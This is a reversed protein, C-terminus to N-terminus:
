NNNPATDEIMARLQLLENSVLDISDLVRQKDEPTSDEYANIYNATVGSYRDYGTHEGVYKTFDYVVTALQKQLEAPTCPGGFEEHVKIKLRSM